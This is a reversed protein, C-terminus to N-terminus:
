KQIITNRTPCRPSRDYTSQNWGGSEQRQWLHHRELPSRRWNRGPCGVAIVNIRVVAHSSAHRAGCSSTCLLLPLPGHPPHQALVRVVHVGERYVVLSQLPHRFHPHRPSAGHQHGCTDVGRQRQVGDRPKLSLYLVWPSDESGQQM